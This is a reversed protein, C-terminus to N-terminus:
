DERKDKDCVHGDANRSSEHAGKFGHKGKFGHRKGHRGWRYKVKECGTVVDIRDVIAKDTGEGCDITDKEGDKAFIKDDGGLANITDAGAFGVIVDRADTGALTEAAATGKVFNKHEGGDRKDGHAGAVGATLTLAAVTMLITRIITKM